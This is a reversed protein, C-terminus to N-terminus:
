VVIIDVVLGKAKLVPDVIEPVNCIPSKATPNGVV